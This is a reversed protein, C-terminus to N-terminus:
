RGPQKEGVAEAVAEREGDARAARHDQAALPWRRLHDGRNKLFVFRGDEEGDWGHESRQDFVRARAVLELGARELKADRGPLHQRHRGPIIPLIYAADLDELGDARGLEQMREDVVEAVAVLGAARANRELAVLHLEDVFVALRHIAGPAPPELHLPAAGNRVVEVLRLLGLLEDLVAPDRGAVDVAAVLPAEVPEFAAAVIEELARAHPYRWAFHLLRQDRM